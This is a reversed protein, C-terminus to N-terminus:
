GDSFGFPTTTRRYDDGLIQRGIPPESRATCNIRHCLRCTIGVPTPRQQKEPEAKHYILREAHQADCVLAVSREVRPEGFAGGGASVTRAISFFRKGDPFELWQILVEEPRRFAEHVTWLPCSCGHSAFPFDAGELRKSVNGAIDLRIFFFPIREQGPRQLTTLRHAAQEFSVGFQRSIAAVDYKSGDVARAFAAYPMLIAAACYSALARNAIRTSSEDSFGGEKVAAGIEKGFELYSLQLALQFNQSSANLSNDLLIERRHRDHRRLSGSMVESPMRRVRLGHKETLYGQIGGKETIGSALKEAIAELAPFCNRRAALFRRTAALPDIADSEGKRPAPRNDALALQEERYATHLRLLAESFAPFSAVVDAIETPNFDIDAFIPDKMVANLRATQDANNDGALEAM